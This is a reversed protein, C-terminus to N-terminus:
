PQQVAVPVLPHALRLPHGHVLQIRVPHVHQPVAPDRLDPAHVALRRVSALRADEEAVLLPRRHHLEDLAVGGTCAIRRPRCSGRGGRCAANRGCEAQRRLGGAVHAQASHVVLAPRLDRGPVHVAQQLDVELRGGDAACEVALLEHLNVGRGSAEECHFAVVRSADRQLQPNLAHLPAKGLFAEQPHESAPQWHFTRRWLCHLLCQRDAVREHQVEEDVVVVALRPLVPNCVAPPPQHHEIAAHCPPVARKTSSAAHLLHQAVGPGHPLVLLLAEIHPLLVARHLGHVHLLVAELELPLHCM